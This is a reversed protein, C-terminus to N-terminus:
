SRKGAFSVPEPDEGEGGRVNVNEKELKVRGLFSENGGRGVVWADKEQRGWWLM